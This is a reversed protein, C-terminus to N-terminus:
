HYNGAALVCLIPPISATTEGKSGVPLPCWKAMLSTSRRTNITQTRAYTRSFCGAVQFEHIVAKPAVLKATADAGESELAEASEAAGEESGVLDM